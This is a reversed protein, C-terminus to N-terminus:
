IEYLYKDCTLCFLFSKHYYGGIGFPMPTKEDIIKTKHFLKCFINQPYIKKFYGDLEFIYILFFLVAISFLGIIAFIYLLVNFM